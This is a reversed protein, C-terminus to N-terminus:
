LKCKYVYQKYSSHLTDDDYVYIEKNIHRGMLTPYTKLIIRSYKDYKYEIVMNGSTSSKLLGDVFENTTLDGKNNKISIMNGNEDYKYDTIVIRNDRRYFDVKKRIVRGEKKVLNTVRLTKGNNDKRVIKNDTYLSYGTKVGNIILEILIRDSNYKRETVTDKEKIITYIEGTNEDRYEELEKGTMQYIDKFRLGNDSYNRVIVDLLKCDM